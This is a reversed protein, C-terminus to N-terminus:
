QLGSAPECTKASLCVVRGTRYRRGVHEEHSSFDVTKTIPHLVFITSVLLHVYFPTSLSLSLIYLFWPKDAFVRSIGLDVCRDM